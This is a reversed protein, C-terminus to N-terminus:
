KSSNCCCFAYLKEKQTGMYPVTGTINRIIDSVAYAASLIWQRCAPMRNCRGYRWGHSRGGTWVLFCGTYYICQWFQYPDYGSLIWSFRTAVVDLAILCGLTALKRGDWRNKM